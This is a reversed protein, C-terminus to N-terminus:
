RTSAEGQTTAARESGRTVLKSAPSIYIAQRINRRAWSALDHFVHANISLYQYFLASRALKAKRSFVFLYVWMSLRRFDARGCLSNIQIYCLTACCPEIM